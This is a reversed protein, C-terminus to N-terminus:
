LYRCSFEYKSNENIQLSYPCFADIHSGQLAREKEM